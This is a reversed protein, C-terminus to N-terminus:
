GLGGRAWAPVPDHGVVYSRGKRDEPAKWFDSWYEFVEPAFERAFCCQAPPKDSGCDCPEVLSTVSVFEGKGEANFVRRTYEVLGVEREEKTLELRPMKSDGLQTCFQVVDDIEWRKM